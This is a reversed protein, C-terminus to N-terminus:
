RHNSQNPSTAAGNGWCHSYIKSPMWVSLAHSVWLGAGISQRTEEGMMVGMAQLHGTLQADSFDWGESDTGEKRRVSHVWSLICCPWALPFRLVPRFYGLYALNPRLLPSVEVLKQAVQDPGGWPFFILHSANGKFLSDSLERCHRMTHGNYTGRNRDKLPPFIEGSTTYHFTLFAWNGSPSLTLGSAQSASQTYSLSFELAGQAIHSAPHASSRTQGPPPLGLREGVVVLELSLWSRYLSKESQKTGKICSPPILPLLSLVPRIEALDCLFFSKPSM